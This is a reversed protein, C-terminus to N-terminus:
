RSPQGCSRCLRATPLNKGCLRAARKPSLGQMSFTILIQCASLCTNFKMELSIDRFQSSGDCYVWWITYLYSLAAMICKLVMFPPPSHFSDTVAVDAVLIICGQLLQRSERLSCSSLSLCRLSALPTFPCWIDYHHVSLILLIICAWFM